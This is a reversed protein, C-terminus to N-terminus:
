LEDSAKEKDDQPPGSGDEPIDAEQQGEEPSEDKSAGAEAAEQEKRAALSGEIEKLMEDIGKRAENATKQIDEPVMAGLSDVFDLLKLQEKAKTQAEEVSVMELEIDSDDDEYEDDLDEGDALADIEARIGDMQRFVALFTGAIRDALGDIIDPIDVAPARDVFRQLKRKLLDDRPNKQLEKRLLAFSRRLNDTAAKIELIENAAQDGTFTDLMEDVEEPTPMGKQGGELTTGETM